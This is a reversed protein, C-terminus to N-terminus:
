VKEYISYVQQIQKYNTAFRIMAENLSGAKIEVKYDKDICEYRFIFTKM